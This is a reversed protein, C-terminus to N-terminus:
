PADRAEIALQVTVKGAHRFELVLPVTKGRELAAELDVLMLHIGGPAIKVTAGPAIVIESLPRMRAVGDVMSTEHMEVRAAAPTSAGVLADAVNGHNTISLYAVGMPMGPATARSWAHDIVLSSTQAQQAPAVGILLLAAFPALLGRPV